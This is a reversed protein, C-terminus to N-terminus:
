KLNDIVWHAGYIVADMIAEKCDLTDSDYDYNSAHEDAYKGIPTKCGFFNNKSLMTKIEELTYKKM